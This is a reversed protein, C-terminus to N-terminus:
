YAQFACALRLTTVTSGAQFTVKHIPFTLPMYHSFFQCLIVVCSKQM